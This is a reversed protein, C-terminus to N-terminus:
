KHMTILHASYIVLQKLIAFIVINEKGWRGKATFNHSKSRSRKIKQVLEKSGKKRVRYM